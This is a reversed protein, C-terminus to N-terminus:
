PLPSVLRTSPESGPVTCVRTAVGMSGVARAAAAAEAAVAQLSLGAAAAAGAVQALGHTPSDGMCMCFEQVSNHQNSLKAGLVKGILLEWVVHVHRLALMVKKLLQPSREAHLACFFKMDQM